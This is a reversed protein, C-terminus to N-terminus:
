FSLNVFAGVSYNVGAYDGSGSDEAGLASKLGSSVDAKMTDDLAQGEVFADVALSKASNSFEEGSILVHRAVSGQVGVSLLPLLKYEVSARARLNLGAAKDSIQDLAGFNEQYADEFVDYSVGVPSLLGEIQARQEASISSSENNSPFGFFIVGGYGGITFKIEDGFSLDYGLNLSGLYQSNAMWEMDGWISIGLLQVGAEIGGAPQGEFREFVEGTGSVFDVKPKLWIGFLDAHAQPALVGIAALSLLLSHIYKRM